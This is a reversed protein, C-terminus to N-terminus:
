WLSARKVAQMVQTQKGGPIVSPAAQVETAVVGWYDTTVLWTMPVASGTSANTSGGANGAASSTNVNELWRSTNPATASVVEQGTAVVSACINGTVSTPVTASATGTNGFATVVTGTPTSQNVGTFSMSGGLLRNPTADLTVSVTGTGSAPGIVHWLSAFGAYAGTNNNTFVEGIMTGTQTGFTVGTISSFAIGTTGTTSPVACVLLYRNAATSVVHLWSVSTTNTTGSSSPGVTDYSVAV